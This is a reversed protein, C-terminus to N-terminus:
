DLSFNMKSKMRLLEQTALEDHSMSDNANKLHYSQFLPTLAKHTYSAYVLPHIYYVKSIMPTNRLIDSVRKTAQSLNKRLQKKTDFFPYTHFLTQGAFVTAGWTRFDKASIDYASIEKLYENVMASDIPHRLGNEDMYQFLTYGPLDELRRITKAVKPDKIEVSHDRGSKGVFTFRVKSGSVQVHDDRFTTLGFHNNHKVYEENGIRIYTNDLLWVITSLVKRDNLLTGRMDKEVIERMRPLIDSFPLLKNFKNEQTRKIWEKHYIYQKRGKEDRGTVQIHGNENPSIWVNEWAPPIDLKEIRDLIKRDNIRRNNLDIYLFAGGQRIRHFGPNVDTNYFLTDSYFPQTLSGGGLTFSNM